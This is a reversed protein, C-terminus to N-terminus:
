ARPKGECEAESRILESIGIVSRKVQTRQDDSLDGKPASSKAIWKQATKESHEFVDVRFPQEENLRGEHGLAAERGARRFPPSGANVKEREPSVREWPHLRKTANHYSNVSSGKLGALFCLKESGKRPCNERRDRLNM